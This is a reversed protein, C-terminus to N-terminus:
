AGPRGALKREILAALEGVNNLGDIERTGFKIRFEQEIAVILRIHSISDWDDIDLASLEPTVEITPDDFTDRFVETLQPYIDM